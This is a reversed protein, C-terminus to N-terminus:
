GNALGKKLEEREARLENKRDILDKTSKYLSAYTGTAQIQNELHRTVGQNDIKALEADIEDIKEQALEADTKPIEVVDVLNDNEDLVFEYRPFLQMIKDALPTNDPVVYWEDSSLWNFNAVDSRTQFGKNIKNVIM